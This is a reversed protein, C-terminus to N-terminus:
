DNELLAQYIERRSVGRDAAVAKMAAKKDMGEDLYRQLHEEVTMEEFAAIEEARIEERSRGAIVLVCEGRPENAEYYALAESFTTRFFTEHKKTLERCVTVPRDGLAELLEALTRVLRHPAEYVVMTRTELAMEALVAQREKKESPLFAEFAFRRTPLGSATLATICAAPGPLSTVTIGAEWAMKVLEEGPDSIGPTGADTILAVNEGALMREVLQRGKEIKNYEHYSTMPTHIQFHNLLKISNRTDEAAIVDAESLVRVVRYTIDELNGIPTACLYLTGREM